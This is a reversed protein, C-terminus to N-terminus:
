SASLLLHPPHSLFHTVSFHIASHFHKKAGMNRDGVKETVQTQSGRDHGIPKPAFGARPSGHDFTVTTDQPRNSQPSFHIGSLVLTTM